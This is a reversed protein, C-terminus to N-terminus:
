FTVNVGFVFQKYTPFSDSGGMEPDTGKLQKDKVFVIPNYCTFYFRFKDMLAYKIMNKPLSYGLTINKVKIFSGDHVRLASMVTQENGSGPVPYYANQNNSTWYDVGSLQNVAVNSDATYYGLLDSYITQGYRMMAFVSLDFGRYTVTNNLGFIWDPNTHGLVQRDAISYKHVGNDSNGQDDTKEVTNIKVWGAKVGYATLDEQSADSGWIGAYNYDYISHIPQGEFLSESILDGNPLSVIKEKSLTGTLTTNWTLDKTRINHSNITFEVGHNATKAINEWSSLPSGWGTIGSTIPMTRKFLLGRTRTSFVDVSGDIIGRGFGFDIGVNWNYSKEWGLNQSGYTGSYQTFPVYQGNVSVGWQPYKYANTQTSYAGVGGSNGTISWGVRVKLNDLWENTGQLFKEDSMRWALAVAPFSDWKNGESFFSVGDWRNSFSFLYRGLFSYNVRVAYSMMQTQVYASELRNNTAAILRWYQWVDLDQGSGNTLLSETSNRQWSTIGTLALDHKEAFTKKYSFINEWSYNYTDNMTLGASPTGAYSPRSATADAGWYEGLRDHALTANIQSRISFGDFLDVELYGITNIYTRRTNNAYQNDIYDGLPTYQNKIYESNIQGSKDYASGLPFAKLANSFNNSNGKDQISYTLNSTLGIKAWSFIRQDLNLRLAYKTLGENAMLGTEKTYTASTFVKTKETGGSVSLAYKQTTATNGVAEDVWDIWQGNDYADVYEQTGGMLATINDPYNGNKYRYAEKAYATWEDGTMGHKFQPSGSWGYYADFNVRTKGEQGRKTTVIIVGNAGASGYIATASADKLVDVSEVDNPNLQDYSGPLGDIIFLPSNDGYISRSGRLLISVGSGLQGSSKTIDLGAVKGQLSEMVNNTPAITIDENKMTVVSGTLDKKKVTGYGVVVIEDLGLADPTMQINTRSKSFSQSLYGTYTIELIDKGAPVDIVYNGDVDTVTALQTGKVRVTVGIMPEGNEDTIKGKVTKQNQQNTKAVDPGIEQNSAFSATSMSIMLGLALPFARKRLSLFKKVDNNM